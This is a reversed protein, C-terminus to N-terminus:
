VESVDASIHKSGYRHNSGYGGKRQKSCILKQTRIHTNISRFYFAVMDMMPSGIAKRRCSPFSRSSSKRQKSRILNQTTYLDHEQFYFAIMDMMCTSSGRMHMKSM